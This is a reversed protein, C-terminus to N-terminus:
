AKKTKSEKKPSAKAEKKCNKCCSKGKGCKKDGDQAFAVGSVLFAVTALMIIKKM